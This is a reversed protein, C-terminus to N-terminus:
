DEGRLWRGVTVAEPSVAGTQIGKAFSENMQRGLEIWADRREQRKNEARTLLRLVGKRAVEGGIALVLMAFRIVASRGSNVADMEIVLTVAMIGLQGWTWIRLWAPQKTM